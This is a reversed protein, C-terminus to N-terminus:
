QKENVQRVAAVEVDWYRPLRGWPNGGKGDTVYCYGVNAAAMERLAQKMQEATEVRSLLAAFRSAPYKGAWAPRRYASFDKNTEVLCAVDAAPRALYEEACAAGPNGVVLSLGRDKRVYEYLAAYYLVQDAASAQEDFFIGQVDPYFKVWRDVERKVVQLPRKGYKTSVYGLVVAGKSRAREIVKVYNPDAKNGPGSATNAIVVTGAPGASDILRYWEALGEGAPYFYAPVLLRLRPAAVVPAPAVPGEPPNNAGGRMKYATFGAAGALAVAVVAVVAWRRRAKGATPRPRPAAVPEDVAM